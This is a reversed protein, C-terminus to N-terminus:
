ILLYKQTFGSCDFGSSTTGGWAYPVGIYQKATSVLEQPTAGEADILPSTFIMFSAFVPILWKKESDIGGEIEETRM